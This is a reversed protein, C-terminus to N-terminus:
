EIRKNPPKVPWHDLLVSSESVHNHRHWRSGRRWNEERQVLNVQLANREVYRRVNLLHANSESRIIYIGQHLYGEGAKRRCTHWRQTRTLTLWGSFRSLDHDQAALSGHALSKALVFHLYAYKLVIKPMTSSKNSNISGKNVRLYGFM